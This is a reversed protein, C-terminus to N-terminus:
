KIWILVLMDRLLRRINLATSVQGAVITAQLGELKKRAGGEEVVVVGLYGIRRQCRAAM